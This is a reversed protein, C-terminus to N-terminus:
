SGKGGWAVCHLSRQVQDLRDGTEEGGGGLGRSWPWLSDVNKVIQSPDSERELESSIVLAWPGLSPTAPLTFLAFLVYDQGKPTKWEGKKSRTFTRISVRM